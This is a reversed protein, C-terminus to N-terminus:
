DPPLPQFSEIVVRGEPPRRLINLKTSWSLFPDQILQRVLPPDQLRAPAPEFRAVARVAFEATIQYNTCLLNFEGPALHRSNPAPQLAQGFAFVVFRPEDGKLLSLTQRPLAEVAEDSLDNARTLDLYPSEVSLAPASLVDGLRGFRGDPFNTRVRNIDAVVRLLQPSDPEVIVDRYAAGGSMSNSLVCVGSLAASWAAVNTQNVSLLGRAASSNVAVTFLDPLRWDNTPHSLLSLLGTGVWRQWELGDQVPSKLFVTQWPTGRHVRGIVGLSAFKNTPFDWDDAGRVGPDKVAMNFAYPDSSANKNTNGGWPQFRENLLGLNNNTPNNAVTVIQILNTREPDILDQLTYHVLPDNAQWYSKQVLKRVPTFPAQINTVTLLERDTIDELGTFQRFLSIAKDKDRVTQFSNWNASLAGQSALVQNLVGEPVNRTLRTSWFRAEDSTNGFAENGILERTVHMGGDLNRLNVFDVIRRTAADVLILQMRNSIALGWQPVFFTGRTKEFALNTSYPLFRPGGAARFAANNLVALNTLLPVRFEGGRWALAPVATAHGLTLNTRLLVQGTALNTAANTLMLSFANTVRLELPRALAQTYANWAEVGFLSALSMVFMQNTQTPQKQAPSAKQLELKRTLEVTTQLAFENFSPWGKKAGVVLPVGHVNVPGRVAARQAPLELDYWPQADIENVTEVEDYGIIEIIRGGASAGFIPRFVSPFDPDGPRSGAKRLTTADYLNAAVQLLRHVEQGYFNTPWVQINTIGFAFGHARLLREAANTFFQAPRWSVLNTVGLVGDGFPAAPTSLDNTFNLNMRGATAPLSDSGMQGLLRYVTYRDYTGFNTSVSTLRHLFNSFGGRTQRGLAFVEQLDFYANTNESGAWPRSSDAAFRDSYLDVNRNDLFPRNTTTSFYNRLSALSNFHGAYRNTLLATADEFAIGQSPLTNTNYLYDNIRWANTNLDRLFAALNLEWSGVGQNRSFGDIAPNAPRKAQNHVFNLDLSKGAPFVLFAYRGLFLNSGSHPLEPRELVGIWEPDGVLNMTRRPVLFQGLRDRVWVPGNTEYYGNRNFDLYFRFDPNVAPNTIVYVPPRPDYQLNALNRLQANQNLLTGNPYVYSVNTPDAVGPQFGFANIYNTSVFFDYNYLNTRSLIRTALEAQARALAADAMLKSTTQDLTVTVSARERRSTSLFAVAMLVVVSLMVLTTVLAIGQQAHRHRM